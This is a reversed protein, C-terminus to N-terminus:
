NVKYCKEFANEEAEQLTQLKAATSKFTNKDKSQSLDQIAEDSQQQANEVAKEADRCAQLSSGQRIPVRCGNLLITLLLIGVILKAKKTSRAVITFEM